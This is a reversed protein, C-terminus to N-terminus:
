PQDQEGNTHEVNESNRRCDCIAMESNYNPQRGIYGPGQDGGWGTGDCLRCTVTELTGNGFKIEESTEGAGDCADCPKRSGPAARLSPLGSRIQKTM